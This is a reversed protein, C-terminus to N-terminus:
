EILMAPWVLVLPFQSRVTSDNAESPPPVSELVNFTKQDIIQAATPLKQGSAGLLASGLTVGFLIRAVSAARISPM